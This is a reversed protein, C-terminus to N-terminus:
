QRSSSSKRASSKKASSKKPSKKSAKRAAKAKEAEAKKKQAAVWKKHMERAETMTRKKNNITVYSARGEKTVVRDRGCLSVKKPKAPSKKASPSRKKSPSRKAGGALSATTGANAYSNATLKTPDVIGSNASASANM